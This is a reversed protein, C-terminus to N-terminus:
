DIVPLHEPAPEHLIEAGTATVVYQEEVTIWGYITSTMPEVSIIMNPELITHNSPFVSLGGTNRLGHGVRGVERAPRGHRQEVEICARYIDSCRNGPKIQDAM